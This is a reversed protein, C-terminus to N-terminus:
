FGAVFTNLLVQLLKNKVPLDLVTLEEDSWPDPNYEREAMEDECNEIDCSGVPYSYVSSTHLLSLIVIISLIYFLFNRM